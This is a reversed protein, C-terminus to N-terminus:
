FLCMRRQETHFPVNAWAKGWEEGAGTPYTSGVRQEKTGTNRGWQFVPWVNTYTGPSSGTEGTLEWLDSLNVPSCVPHTAPERCIIGLPEGTSVPFHPCGGGWDMRSTQKNSCVGSMLSKSKRQKKGMFYFTPRGNSPLIPHNTNEAYKARPQIPIQM